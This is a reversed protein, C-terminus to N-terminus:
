INGDYGICANKYRLYEKAISKDEWYDPESASGDSFVKYVGYIKRETIYNFMTILEYHEQQLSKYLPKTGIM